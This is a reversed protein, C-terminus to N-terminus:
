NYRSYDSKAIRSSFQFSIVLMPYALRNLCVVAEGDWVCRNKERVFANRRGCLLSSVALSVSFLLVDRATTTAPIMFCYCLMFRQLFAVSADSIYFLKEAAISIKLSQLFNYDKKFQFEIWIQCEDNIAVIKKNTAKPRGVSRTM